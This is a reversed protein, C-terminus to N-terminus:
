GTGRYVIEEGFAALTWNLLLMVILFAANGPLNEFQSLDQTSGTLWDFLPEQVFTGWRSEHRRAEVGGGKECRRCGLCPDQIVAEVGPDLHSGPKHPAMWTPWLGAMGPRARKGLSRIRSLTAGRLWGAGPESLRERQIRVVM